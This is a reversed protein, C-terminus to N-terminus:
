YTIIVCRGNRIDPQRVVRFLWIARFQLSEQSCVLADNKMSTALVVRVPFIKASRFLASSVAKGMLMTKSCGTNKAIMTYM